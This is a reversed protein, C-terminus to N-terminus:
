YSSEDDNGDSDEENNVAAARRRGGDIGVGSASQLQKLKQKALRKQVRKAQIDEVAEGRQREVLLTFEGVM